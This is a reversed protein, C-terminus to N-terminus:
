MGEPLRTMKEDLYRDWDVRKKMKEATAGSVDEFFCAFDELQSITMEKQM